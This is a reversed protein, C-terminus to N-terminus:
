LKVLCHNPHFKFFVGNDPAFKSVSILNKTITHVHLFHNLSLSVKLNIPSIFTSYGTSNIAFGQGNGIYIQVPGEFPCFLQIKQSERTVHFSAGSDPIWTTSSGPQFNSNCDNCKSATSESQEANVQESQNRSEM